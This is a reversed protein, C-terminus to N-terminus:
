ILWHVEAEEGAKRQNKNWGNSSTLRQSAKIWRSNKKKNKNKNKRTYHAKLTSSLRVALWYAVCGSSIFIKIVSRLQRTDQLLGCNHLQSHRSSASALRPHNKSSDSVATTRQDECVVTPWHLTSWRTSLPCTCSWRADTTVLSVADRPGEAGTTHVLGELGLGLRQGMLGPSISANLWSVSALGLRKDTSGLRPPADTTLLWTLPQWQWWGRPAMSRSCVPRTAPRSPTRSGRVRVTTQTSATAPRASTPTVQRWSRWWTVEVCHRLRPCAPTVSLSSRTSRTRQLTCLAMYMYIHHLTASSPVKVRAVSYQSSSASHTKRTCRCHVNKIKFIWAPPWGTCHRRFINPLPQAGVKYPPGGYTEASTAWM